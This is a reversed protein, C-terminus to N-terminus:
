SAGDLRVLAADLAFLEADVADPALNGSDIAAHYHDAVVRAQHRYAAIWRFDHAGAIVAALSVADVLNQWDPELPKPRLWRWRKATADLLARLREITTM